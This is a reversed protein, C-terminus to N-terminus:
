CNHLTNVMMFDRNCFDNDADTSPISAPPSPKSQTQHLFWSHLCANILIMFYWLNKASSLLLLLLPLQTIWTKTKQWLIILLEWLLFLASSYYPTHMFPFISHQHSLKCNFCFIYKKKGDQLNESCWYILLLISFIWELLSAWDLVLANNIALFISIYGFLQLREKKSTISIGDGNLLLITTFSFSNKVQNQCWKHLSHQTKWSSVIILQRYISVYLWLM